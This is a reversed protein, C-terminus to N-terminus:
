IQAKDLVSQIGGGGLMGILTNVVLFAVAIIILGVIARTVTTKAAELEGPANEMFSWYFMRVGGFIIFLIAVLGALGLLTNYINVLLQIIDEVGCPNSSETVDGNPLTKYRIPDCDPLLQIASAVGPTAIFILGAFGAAM